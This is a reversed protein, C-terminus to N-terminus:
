SFGEDPALAARVSEAVALGERTRLVLGAEVLRALMRGASGRPIGTARALAAPTACGASVARLADMARSGPPAVRADGPLYLHVAHGHRRMVVQQARALTRVHYRVTTYDVALSAAVEPLTAGPRLRLYEVLARRRDHQLM